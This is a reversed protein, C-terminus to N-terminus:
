HSDTINHFAIEASSVCTGTKRLVSGGPKSSYTYLNIHFHLSAKTTQPVSYNSSTASSQEVVVVVIANSLNSRHLLHAFPKQTRRLESHLLRANERRQIHEDANVAVFTMFWFSQEPRRASSSSKM